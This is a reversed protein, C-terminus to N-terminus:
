FSDLWDLLGGPTDITADAHWTHPDDDPAIYGYVAAVSRMGARRAAVVDKEADGVYV